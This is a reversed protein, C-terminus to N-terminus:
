FRKDTKDLDRQTSYFDMIFYGHACNSCAEKYPGSFLSVHVFDLIRQQLLFGVPNVLRLLENSSWCTSNHSLKTSVDLEDTGKSCTKRSFHKARINVFSNWSLNIQNVHRICQTIESKRRSTSPVARKQNIVWRTTSIRVSTGSIVM